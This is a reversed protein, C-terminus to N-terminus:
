AAWLVQVASKMQETRYREIPMARLIQKILNLMKIFPDMDDNAIQRIYADIEEKPLHNSLLHAMMRYYSSSTDSAEEKTIARAVLLKSLVDMIYNEHVGQDILEEINTNEFNMFRANKLNNFSNRAAIVKESSLDVTMVVTKQPDKIMAALDALDDYVRLKDGFIRGLGDKFIRLTEKPFQSRPMFVEVDLSKIRAAIAHIDIDEPKPFAFVGLTALVSMAAGNIRADAAQDGVTIAEGSWLREFTADNVERV